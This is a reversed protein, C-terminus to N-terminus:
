NLVRGRRHTICCWPYQQENTKGLIAIDRTDHRQNHRSRFGIEASKDDADTALSRTLLSRPTRRSPPSHHGCRVEAFHPRSVSLQKQETGRLGRQNNHSGAYSIVNYITSKDILCLSYESLYSILGFNKTRQDGIRICTLVIWKRRSKIVKIINQSPQM